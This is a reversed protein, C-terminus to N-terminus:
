RCHNNRWRICKSVQDDGGPQPMIMADGSYEDTIHERISAHNGGGCGRRRDRVRPTPQRRRHYREPGRVGSFLTSRSPSHSSVGGIGRGAALPDADPYDAAEPPREALTRYGTEEAFRAFGAVTVPGRDIAFGGRGRPGPGGEPLLGGLGDPVEGRPDRGDGHRGHRGMGLSPLPQSPDSCSTGAACSLWPKATSIRSGESPPPNDHESASARFDRWRM